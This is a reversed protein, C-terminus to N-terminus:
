VAAAAPAVVAFGTEPLETLADVQHIINRLDAIASHMIECAGAIIELSEVIPARDRGIECVPVLDM